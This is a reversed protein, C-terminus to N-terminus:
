NSGNIEQKIRALEEIDNADKAILVRAVLAQAKEEGLEDIRKLVQTGLQCFPCDKKLLWRAADLFQPVPLGLKTAFVALKSDRERKAVAGADNRTSQISKVRWGKPLKGAKGVEITEGTEINELTVKM